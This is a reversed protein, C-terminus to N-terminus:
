EWAEVRGMKVMSDKFDGFFASPDQAYTEVLERTQDDRTTINQDSLLLGEGSLLNLYYQDDFTAPTALDLNALTNIDSESCLQRLLQIYELATTSGQLRATFTTCRAKGMTHAGVINENDDLLASADCGGAAAYIIAEAEPCRNNYVDNGLLDGCDEDGYGGGGGGGM